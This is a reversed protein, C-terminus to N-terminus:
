QRAPESAKVARKAKLKEGVITAVVSGMAGTVVGGAVWDHGSLALKYAFYLCISVVLVGASKGFVYGALEQLQEERQLDILKTECARRHAGEAVMENVITQGAGSIAAEYARLQSPAPLPGSHSEQRLISQAITRVAAESREGTSSSNLTPSSAVSTEELANQTQSPLDADSHSLPTM